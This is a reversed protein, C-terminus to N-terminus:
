RVDVEVTFFKFDTYAVITQSRVFVRGRETVYAEEIWLKSPFRIGNKEASFESRLTIRPKLKYRAAREEFVARNGIRADNWEIKLIEGDDAGVWAKGYLNTTGPMDYLPEAEIIVAPTNGVKDHGLIRYTYASQFRQAFIGVPGLLPTGFVFNQTKLGTGPESAPKGNEKLLTRTERLARNKDRVCQYDYEYADKEKASPRGVWSMGFTGGVAWNSIIDPRSRVQDLAYNISEAIEERCVFDLVSGELRAAYASLKRLLATLVPDQAEQAPRSFLLGSAFALVALALGLAAQGLRTDRSFVASSCVHKMAGEGSM